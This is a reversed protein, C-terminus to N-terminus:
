QGMSYKGLPASETAIPIAGALNNNLYLDVRSPISVNVDQQQQTAANSMFSPQQMAFNPLVSANYTDIGKDLTKDFNNEGFNNLVSSVFPTQATGASEGLNIFGQKVMSLAELPHGSSAKLMANGVSEGFNKFSKFDFGEWMAFLALIPGSAKAISTFATSLIGFGWTITAMSAAVATLAVGIGGLITGMKILEPNEDLWAKFKPEAIALYNAINGMHEDVGFVSLLSNGFDAAMLRMANHIRESSTGTTMLMQKYSEYFASGEKTMDKLVPEILKISIAHKGIAAMAKDSLGYYKKFAEMLPIGQKALMTMMRTSSQGTVKMRVFTQSITEIDKGSGVAFVSMQRMKENLEDMSYGAAKLSTATQVLAEPAIGTAMSMQKIDNMVKAANAASGTVGILGIEM